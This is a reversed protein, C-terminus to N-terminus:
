CVLISSNKILNSLELYIAILISSNKILDSSELYFGLDKHDDCSNIFEHIKSLILHNLTSDLDKHDIM